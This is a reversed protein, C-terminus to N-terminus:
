VLLLYYTTKNTPLLSYYPSGLVFILLGCVLFLILLALGNAPTTHTNLPLAVRRTVPWQGPWKSSFLAFKTRFLIMFARRRGEQETKQRDPSM